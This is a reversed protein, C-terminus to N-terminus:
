PPKLNEIREFLGKMSHKWMNQLEGDLMDKDTPLELRKDLMGDAARDPLRGIEDWIEDWHALIALLM